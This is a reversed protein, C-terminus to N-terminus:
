SREVLAGCCLVENKCRERGLWVWGLGLGKRGSPGEVGRNSFVCKANYQGSLRFTHRFLMTCVRQQLCFMRPPKTPWNSTYRYTCAGPPHLRRSNYGQGRDVYEWGGGASWAKPGLARMMVLAATCCYQKQDRIRLLYFHIYIYPHLTCRPWM